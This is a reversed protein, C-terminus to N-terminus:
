GKSNKSKHAKENIIWSTESFFVTNEYYRLRFDFHLLKKSCNRFRSLKELMKQKRVFFIQPSVNQSLPGELNLSKSPMVIKRKVQPKQAKPDLFYKHWREFHTRGLWFQVFISQSVAWVSIAQKWPKHCKCKPPSLFARFFCTKSWFFWKKPYKLTGRSPNLPKEHFFM